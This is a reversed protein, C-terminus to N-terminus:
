NRSSGQEVWERWAFEENGPLNTRAIYLVLRFAQTYLLFALLFLPGMVWGGSLWIEFIKQLSVEM